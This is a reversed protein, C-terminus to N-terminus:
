CIANRKLEQLFTEADSPCGYNWVSEEKVIKELGKTLQAITEASFDGNRYCRQFDKFIDMCLYDPSYYDDFYNYHEDEVFHKTLSALIQLFLEVAAVHNGTKLDTAIQRHFPELLSAIRDCDNDLNRPHFVAEIAPNLQLM